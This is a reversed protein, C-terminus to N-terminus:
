KTSLDNFKERAIAFLLFPEQEHVIEKDFNFGLKQLLNISGTNDKITTAVVQEHHALANNLIALAAEHAFGQGTYRTLFAFGIDHYSLYNRKIFTVVGVPTQEDRTQVVWYNIDPNAIIKQIYLAAEELNNINRNGIFKIWEPMNVLEQIFAADTVTLENLLLRATSYTAQMILKSNYSLYVFSREDYFM